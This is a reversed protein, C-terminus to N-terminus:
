GEGGKMGGERVKMGEVSAALQGLAQLVRRAEKDHKAAEDQQEEVLGDLREKRAKAEAARKRVAELHQEKQVITAHISGLESSFALM